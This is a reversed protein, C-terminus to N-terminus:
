IDDLELQILLATRSPEHQHNLASLLYVNDLFSVLSVGLFAGEVVRMRVVLDSLAADQLESLKKLDRIQRSAIEASQVKKQRATEVEKKLLDIEVQVDLAHEIHRIYERHLSSDGSYLDLERRNDNSNRADSLEQLAVSVTPSCSIQTLHRTIVTCLSVTTTLSPSAIQSGM